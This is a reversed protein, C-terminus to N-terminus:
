GDAADSTYLLCDKYGSFWDEYARAVRKPTDLLGERGPDEGAWLLLTHVAEEAQKRSPKRPKRPKRKSM